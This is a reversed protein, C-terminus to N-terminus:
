QGTGVPRAAKTVACAKGLAFAVHVRNMHALRPNIAQIRM